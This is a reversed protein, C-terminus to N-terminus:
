LRFQIHKSFFIAIRFILNKIRNKKNNLFIEAFEMLFMSRRNKNYAEILNYKRIYPEKECWFLKFFSEVYLPSYYRESSNITSEGVRYYSTYDDFFYAKIGNKTLTLWMPEDELGRYFENYPYKRLLNLEIFCTQSPLMNTHLLTKFQEEASLEFFWEKDNSSHDGLVIIPNSGRFDMVKSFVLKAEPNKQVYEVNSQICNEYLLDDGDVNKAWEGQCAQVARNYNASVGTNHDVTVVETRVFRDKNNELWKRTLAVTDDSSNDDSVVLEINQYTQGKISELTDCIYDAANYCVVFVSVLPNCNYEM